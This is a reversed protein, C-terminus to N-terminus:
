RCCGDCGHTALVDSLSQEGSRHLYALADPDPHGVGHVCMREMHSPKFDFPGAVRWVLPADKLSHQSPNHICCGNACDENAEHVRLKKGAGDTFDEGWVYIRNEWDITREYFGIEWWGVLRCLWRPHFRREHSWSDFREIYPFGRDALATLTARPGNM